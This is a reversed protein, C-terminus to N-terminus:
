PFHTPIVATLDFTSLAACSCPSTSPLSGQEWCPCHLIGSSWSPWGPGWNGTDGFLWLTTHQPSINEQGGPTSPTLWEQISKHAPLNVRLVLCNWHFQLLLDQGLQELLTWIHGLHTDQDRGPVQAQTKGCPLPFGRNLVRCPGIGMPIGHCQGWTVRMAPLLPSSCPSSPLSNLSVPLTHPLISPICPCMSSLSPHLSHSSM